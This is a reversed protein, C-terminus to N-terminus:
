IPIYSFIYEHLLINNYQSALTHARKEYIRTIAFPKPSPLSPAPSHHHTHAGPRRRRKYRTIFAILIYVFSNKNTNEKKKGGYVYTTIGYTRNKGAGRANRQGTRWGAAKRGDGRGIKEGKIGRAVGMRSDRARGAVDGEIRM